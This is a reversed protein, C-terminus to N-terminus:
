HAPQTTPAPRTVSWRPRSTAAPATTPLRMAEAKSCEIMTVQVSAADTESKRSIFEHDVYWTTKWPEDNESPVPPEDLFQTIETLEMKRDHLEVERKAGIRVRMLVLKGDVLTRYRYTTGQKLGKRQMLLHVGHSLFADEPWTITEESADVPYPRTTTSDTARFLVTGDVNAMYTRRTHGPVDMYCILPRGDLTEVHRITMIRAWGANSDHDDVPAYNKYETVAEGDDIRFELVTYGIKRGESIATYYITIPKPIENAEDSKCGSWFLPTVLLTVTIFYLHTLKQM